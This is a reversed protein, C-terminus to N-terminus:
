QLLQPCSHFISNGPACNKTSAGGGCDIIPVGSRIRRQHSQVVPGRHRPPRSWVAGRETLSLVASSTVAPMSRTPFVASTVPQLEPSPRSVMRTSAIRPACTM